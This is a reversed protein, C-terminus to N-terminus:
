CLTTTISWGRTTTPAGLSDVSPTRSRRNWRTRTQRSSTTPAASTPPSVVAARKVVRRDSPRKWSLRPRCSQQRRRDSSLPRCSQQQEVTQRGRGRHQVEGPGRSAQVIRRRGVSHVSLSCAVLGGGPVKHKVPTKSWCTEWCLAHKRPCAGVNVLNSKNSCFKKERM